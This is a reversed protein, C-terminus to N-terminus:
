HLRLDMLQPEPSADGKETRARKQIFTHGNFFRNNRPGEM